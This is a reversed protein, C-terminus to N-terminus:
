AEKNFIRVLGRLIVTLPMRPLARSALLFRALTDLDKKGVPQHNLVREATQVALARQQKNPVMVQKSPDKPDEQPILLAPFQEVNVLVQTLTNLLQEERPDPPPPAFLSKPKAKDLQQGMKSKRYHRTQSPRSVEEITEKVLAEILARLETKKM